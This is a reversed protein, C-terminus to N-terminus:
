GWKSTVTQLKYYPQSIRPELVLDGPVVTSEQGNIFDSGAVVNGNLQFTKVGTISFAPDTVNRDQEDLGHGEHIDAARCYLLDYIVEFNVYVVEDDNMVVYIEGEPCDAQLCAATMGAM